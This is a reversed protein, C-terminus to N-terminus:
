DTNTQEITGQVADSENIVEYYAIPRLAALPSIKVGKDITAHLVCGRSVIYGVHVNGKYISYVLGGVKPASIERVNLGGIIYDNVSDAPLDAIDGYLDRLPTGARKCCEMVVGYCDYGNKDRGFKKFPINLLDDYKM